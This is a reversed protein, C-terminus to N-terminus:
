MCFAEHIQTYSKHTQEPGSETRGGHGTDGEEGGKDPLTLFARLFMIM